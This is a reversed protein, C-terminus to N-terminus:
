GQGRIGFLQQIMDNAISVVQSSAQYGRQILILDGFAASLDVNSAEIQKSVIKGAGDVGSALLRHEGSGSVEFLGNGSQELEQPDRFDALAVTAPTDSEGNSYNLKLKGNEDVTVTTLQGIAHGDISAVRLSSTTGGSFSTVGNSFDLKVSLPDAGAPSDEITLTSTAPDVVSGIFRLTGTGVTRQADDTVTVAWENLSSGSGSSKAFKITWVHKGGASDYVTQDPATFDTASSSLNNAFVITKTAEPPRIRKDDVNFPVVQGGADLMGLHNQTSQQSIFGDKDVEFQGTRTYYTKDGKLLVLFGSGDIALDLDGNSARLEGQTFDITPDVVRVGEGTGHSNGEGPFVTGGGQSFLDTFSVTTAKFGASNLNGVNNSITKLGNSYATLGSLGVYIAGLM